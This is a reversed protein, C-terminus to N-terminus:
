RSSYKGLSALTIQSVGINVLKEVLQQFREHKLVVKIGCKCDFEDRLRARDNKVFTELHEQPFNFRSPSDDILLVQVVEGQSDVGLPRVTVKGDPTSVIQFVRILPRDGEHYADDCEVLFESKM